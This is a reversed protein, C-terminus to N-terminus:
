PEVIVLRDSDPNEPDLEARVKQSPDTMETFGLYEPQIPLKRNGRDCLIALEVKDPRGNDFLENIAARITRGSFIVDDALIVTAGNMDELPISTREKIGPIPKTAIDDRHFTANIQGFPIDRGIQSSTATALRKGFPIGGNTVGVIVLKDTSAHAAAIESALREFAQSIQAAGIEKVEVMSPSTM